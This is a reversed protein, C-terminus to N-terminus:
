SDVSGERELLIVMTVIAAGLYIFTVSRNSFEEPITTIVLAVIHLISFLLAVRFFAHYSLLINNPEIDEGCAYPERKDPHPKGHAAVTRVLAFFVTGLVIFLLFATLPTMLIEIVSM